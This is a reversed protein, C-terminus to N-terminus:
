PRRETTPTARQRGAETLEIRRGVHEVYGKTKLQRVRSRLTPASISIKECLDAQNMDRSGRWHIVDLVRQLNDPLPEDSTEPTPGVDGSPEDLAGALSGADIAVTLLDEALQDMEAEPADHWPTRSLGNLTKCKHATERLHVEVSDALAGVRIQYQRCLDCAKNVADRADRESPFLNTPWKPGNEARDDPTRDRERQKMDRISQLISVARRYRKRADPYCGALVRAKTKLRRLAERKTM